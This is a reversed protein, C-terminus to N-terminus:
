DKQHIQAVKESCNQIQKFFEHIKRSIQTKTAYNGNKRFKRMKERVKRM